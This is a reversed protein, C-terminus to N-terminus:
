LGLNQFYSSLTILGWTAQLCFRWYDRCDLGKVPLYTAQLNTTEWLIEM